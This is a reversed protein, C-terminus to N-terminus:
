KQISWQFQALLADSRFGRVGTYTREDGGAFLYNIQIRGQGDGFDFADFTAGLYTNTLDTSVGGVESEGDYHRLVLEVKPSLRYGGHVYVVREDRGAVGRVDQGDVWEITATWPGDAYGGALDVVRYDETAPGGADESVGLSAEASWPGERFLVRAAWANADGVQDSTHLTAPSRGAVNFIGVDYGFGHPLSRGSVMIGIDRGPVVGLDLGRKTIGLANGPVNFDRGVPTKFQGFKVSHRPHFSYAVFADQVVNPLTGPPRADLDGANLDLMLGTTWREHGYTGKIRVRDAGFAIGGQSEIVEATLQAFASYSFDGAGSSQAAGLLVVACATTAGGRLPDVMSRCPLSLM